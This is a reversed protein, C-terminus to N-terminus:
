QFSPTTVNLETTNSIANSKNEFILHKKVNWM